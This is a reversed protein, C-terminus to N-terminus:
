LSEEKVFVGGIMVGRRDKIQEWAAEQCDALPLYWQEGIRALCYWAEGIALLVKQQSDKTIGDALKGIAEALFPVTYRERAIASRGPFTSKDIFASKCTSNDLGRKCAIVTLVVACDGIADQLEGADEDAIAALLEALEEILKGFQNWCTSGDLIRREDAWAIVRHEWPQKEGDSM